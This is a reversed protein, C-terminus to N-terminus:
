IVSSYHDGGTSEQCIDGEDGESCTCSYGPPDDILNCTGGHLCPNCSCADDEPTKDQNSCEAKAVDHRTAGKRYSRYPDKKYNTIVDGDKACDPSSTGDASSVIGAVIVGCILIARSLM